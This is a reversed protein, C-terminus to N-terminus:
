GGHDAVELVAGDGAFNLVARAPPEEVLLFAHFPLYVRERIEAQQGAEDAHDGIRPGKHAIRAMFIKAGGQAFENAAVDLLAQDRVVFFQDAGHNPIDAIGVGSFVHRKRAHLLNFIRFGFGRFGPFHAWESTTNRGEIKPSGESKPNSRWFEGPV